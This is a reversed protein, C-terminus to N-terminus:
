KRWGDKNKDTKAPNRSFGTESDWSHPTLNKGANQIRGNRTQVWIQSGDSQMQSYWTNGYKDVGMYNDPNNAANTVLERNEPTDPLHGEANRFIHKLQSDNPPLKNLTEKLAEQYAGTSKKTGSDRYRGM